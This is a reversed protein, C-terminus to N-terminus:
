RHQREWETALQFLRGQAVSISDYVKPDAKDREKHTDAQVLLDLLDRLAEGAECDPAARRLISENCLTM